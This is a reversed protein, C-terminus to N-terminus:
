TLTLAIRRKIETKEQYLRLVRDTDNDREAKGLEIQIQELKRELQRRRLSSLAETAKKFLTDFDSGGAWALDSILAEAILAREEDTEVRESLRSFDM